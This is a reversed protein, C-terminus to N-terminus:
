WIVGFDNFIDEKEKTQNLWPYQPYIKNPLYVQMDKDKDKWDLGDIWYGEGELDYVFVHAPGIDGLKKPTILKIQINEPINQKHTQQAEKLMENYADLENQAQYIGLVTQTTTEEVAFYDM